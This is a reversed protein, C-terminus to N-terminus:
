VAEGLLQLPVEAAPVVIISVELPAEAALDRKAARELPRHREAQPKVADLRLQAVIPTPSSAAQVKRLLVPLYDGSTGAPDPVVAVIGVVRGGAAEDTQGSLQSM